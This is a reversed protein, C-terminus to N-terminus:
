FMCPFRSLGFRVSHAWGAYEGWVSFLKANVEDYLKPTMNTKGSNSTKMGYYKVAINHV